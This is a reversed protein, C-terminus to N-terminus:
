TARYPGGGDIFGILDVVEATSPTFGLSDTLTISTGGVALIAIEESMISYDANHVIVNQGATCKAADGSSLQIVTSTSGALVSLTPDQFAHIIKYLANQDADTTAPYAEIEVIYGAAPVFGLAPFVEMANPITASFGTFTTTGSVSYDPSHVTVNQGVYDAWKTTQDSSNFSATEMRLLTNTSTGLLASSPSVTGFRDSLQSALGAVLRLSTQGSKLDLSRDVVELLQSGLYRNGTDFNQISLGGNDIVAVVDGAEIQSGAEFNTKLSIEVAGRSYRTLLRRTIRNAVLEGNAGHLGSAKIPLLNLIGIDSLAEDDTARIIGQFVGADTPDYEFQIQNFFKRSNLGRQTTISNPEIVNSTNLFILQQQALPPRTFGVSLRGQRTLAYAGIPLYLQSEIFEKGTQQSTIFLRMTYEAGSFYLTRLNLHGEIDVEAPPIKLGIQAPLVDYQSTFTLTAASPSEFTFTDDCYIIRNTQDFAPGLSTVVVTKNNGGIGSGSVTVSDGVVLGYDRNADIGEPLLIANTAPTIEPDIVGGLATVTGLDIAGNGSLMIELALILANEELEVAHTVEKGAVHAAATTGRQGRADVEIYPANVGTPHLAGYGYLMWEDEIKVYPRVRWESSPLASQDVTLDYFGDYSIVPISTVSSNVGVSLATKAATFIATRRRQGLDGLTVVVRGTQFQVNTILGRSVTVYDNPFASNQYGVFVRCRRGLMEGAAFLASSFAQNKDVFVLTLQQISARGQEPELRQSITLSSEVSLLPEVDDRELLNGYFLGSEGYHIEPDGYLLARFTPLTSFATDIGDFVVVINLQKTSLASLRVFESPYTTM